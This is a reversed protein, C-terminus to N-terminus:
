TCATTTNRYANCLLNRIAFCIRESMDSFANATAFLFHLSAHLLLYFLREELLSKLAMLFILLSSPLISM